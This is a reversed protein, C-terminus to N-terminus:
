LTNCFYCNYYNLRFFHNQYKYNHFNFCLKPQKFKLNIEFDELKDLENKSYPFRDNIDYFNGMYQRCIPCYINLNSINKNINNKLITYDYKIICSYHFSHGCDTLFADKRSNISEYCIPCDEGIKIYHKIKINDYINRKIKRRPNYLIISKDIKNEGQKEASISPYKNDYDHIIDELLISKM